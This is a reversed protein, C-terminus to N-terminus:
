ENTLSTGLYYHNLIDKYTMGTKAMENAGYQSMGVGHGYGSAIFEVVGENIQINFDTSALSLLDRFDRGSWTKGGITIEKIRNTDNRIINAQKRVEIPKAIVINGIVQATIKLIM